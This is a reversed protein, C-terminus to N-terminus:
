RTHYMKFCKPHLNRGCKECQFSANNGCIGCRNLKAPVVLHNLGDYRLEDMVSRRVSRSSSRASIAEALLSESLQIRFQLLDMPRENLNACLMRHLLWANVVAVDILHLFIPYYWKKGRISIRYYGVDQDNRDVGGMTKNYLKISEPCSITKLAREKRFFRRATGMPESGAATSAVHVVKNDKWSTLHVGSCKDFRHIFNIFESINDFKYKIECVHV